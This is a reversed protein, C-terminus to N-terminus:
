LILLKMSLNQIPVALLSLLNFGLFLLQTSASALLMHSSNAYDSDCLNLKIATLLIYLNLTHTTSVDTM